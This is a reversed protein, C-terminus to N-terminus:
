GQKHRSEHEVRRLGKKVLSRFTVKSKFKAWRVVSISLSETSFDYMSHKLKEHAQGQRKVILNKYLDYVNAESIYWPSCHLRQKPM